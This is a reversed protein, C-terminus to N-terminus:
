SKRGAAIAAGATSILLRLIKTAAIALFMYGIIQARAGGVSFLASAYIACGIATLMLGARETARFSRFMGVVTLLCGLILTVSWMVLLPVSLVRAITGPQALVLLSAVGVIGTAINLMVREPERILPGPLKRVVALAFRQFRSLHTM